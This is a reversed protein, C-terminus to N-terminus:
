KSFLDYKAWYMDIHVNYVTCIYYHGSTPVRLKKKLGWNCDRLKFSVSGCDCNRL